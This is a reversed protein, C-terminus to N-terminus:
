HIYRLVSLSNCGVCGRGGGRWPEPWMESRADSIDGNASQGCRPGPMWFIGMPRAHWPPLPLHRPVPAGGPRATPSVRSLPVTGQSPSPPHSPHHGCPMPSPPSPTVLNSCTCGLDTYVRPGGPQALACWAPLPQPCQPSPILAAPAAAPAAMPGPCGLGQLTQPLTEPSGAGEDTPETCRDVKPRSFLGTFAEDRCSVGPPARPEAKEEEEEGCASVNGALRPQGSSTTPLSCSQVPNTHSRFPLCIFLMGQFWPYLLPHPICPLAAPLILHM